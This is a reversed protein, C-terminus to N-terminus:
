RLAECVTHDDLHIIRYKANPKGFELIVKGRPLGLKPPTM